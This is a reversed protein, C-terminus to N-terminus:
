KKRCFAAIVLSAVFGTVITGSVGMLANVVPTQFPAALAQVAAIQDATKGQATLMQEQVARLEEFYHPFVVATFLMSGCFIIAAAVVSALTGAGVQPWYTRSAATQCLGWVLLGVEIAVVVWFLNLLTPHKYWGTFGMVFTWVVCAVGIMVGAKVPISM